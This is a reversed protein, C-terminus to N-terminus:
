SILMKCSSGRVVSTPVPRSFYYLGVDGCDRGFEYTAAAKGAKRRGKSGHDVASPASARREEIGLAEEGGEEEEGGGDAGEGRAQELKGSRLGGHRSLPPPAHRRDLDGTKIAEKPQQTRLGPPSCRSRGIRM